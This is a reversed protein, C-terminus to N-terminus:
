ERAVEMFADAIVSWAPGYDAISKLNGADRIRRLEAALPELVSQSWAFYASVGLAQKYQESTARTFEAVSAFETTRAAYSAFAEAILEAEESRVSAEISQSGASVIAALSKFHDPTVPDPDPGPDPDPDPDPGPDPSGITITHVAVDITVNGDTGDAVALSFSYRGPTGSAFVAERGDNVALFRKDSGVLSWRRATGVSGESSLVVLDGPQVTLPADIM